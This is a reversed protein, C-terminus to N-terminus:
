MSAIEIDKLKIDLQIKEMEYGLDEKLAKIEELQNDTLNLEKKFREMPGRGKEKGHPGKGKCHGERNPGPGHHPGYGKGDKPGDGTCHETLGEGHGIAPGFSFAPTLLVAVFLIVLILSHKKM